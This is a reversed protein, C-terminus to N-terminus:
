TYKDNRLRIYKISVYESNIYIYLNLSEFFGLTGKVVNLLCRLGAVYRCVNNSQPHRGVRWRGGRGESKGGRGEIKGRGEEEREEGRVQRRKDRLAPIM